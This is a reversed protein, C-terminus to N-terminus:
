RNIDTQNLMMQQGTRPIYINLWKYLLCRQCLAALAELIKIDTMNLMMKQGTRADVM